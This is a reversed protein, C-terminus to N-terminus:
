SLSKIGARLNEFHGKTSMWGVPHNISRVVRQSRYLLDMADVAAIREVTYLIILPLNLGSMSGLPTLHVLVCGSWVSSRLSLRKLFRLSSRFLIKRKTSIRAPFESIGSQHHACFKRHMVIRVRHGDTLSQAM